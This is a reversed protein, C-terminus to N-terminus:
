VPVNPLVWDGNSNFVFENGYEGLKTLAIIWDILCWVGFGGSTVIKLIGLGIQGRMFRDVGFTDFFFSGLWTYLHKDILKEM